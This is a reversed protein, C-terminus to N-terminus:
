VTLIDSEDGAARTSQSVCDVHNVFILYCIYRVRTQRSVCLFQLVGKVHVRGVTPTRELPRLHESCSLGGGGIM